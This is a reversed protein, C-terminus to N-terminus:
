SLRMTGGAAQEQAGGSGLLRALLEKMTRRRPQPHAYGNKESEPFQEVMSRYAHQYLFALKELRQTQDSLEGACQKV